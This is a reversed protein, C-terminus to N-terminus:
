GRMRHHQFSPTGNIGSLAPLLNSASNVITVQIDRNFAGILVGNRYEQVQYVVVDVDQQTPTVVM